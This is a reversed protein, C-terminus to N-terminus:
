RGAMPDEPWAHRPYRRCLQRRISAYHREWFGALDTTVQVPRQNPALLHLVVGVRGEVVRPGERLGFFDQLRSAVWPPRDEEYHVAARRRGPLEVALPTLRDLRAAPVGLERPLERPLAQRLEDLSTRDACLRELAEELREAGPVELGAEPMAVAVTVLRARLQPWSPCLEELGVRRAAEFLVRAAEPSPPAPMRREELVLERYRVQRVEEVRSGNLVLDRREDLWEFFDEWLWDPEIRSLQRALRRRGSAELREELEVVVALGEGAVISSEAVPAAGGSCLLVDRGRLRGVRDPYAALLARRLEREGAQRTLGGIRELQAAARDLHANRRALDLRHLPDSDGRVTAPGSSPDRQSLLAALRAAQLSPSAELLRSLRPHLPYRAMRRGLETIRGESLAGLDTLLGADFTPPTLWELREPDVDMAHLELLTQSLDLRAIEPELQAPRGEYDRQAYLRYCRGPATRGARGARQDASSRPIRELRLSGGVAVRALGADVVSTVGEVTVSSEAVNTSLLIRPRESPRVAEDQEEPSLDGHLPMVRYGQFREAAERCRRIEAAGPLFVLIHGPARTAQRLAAAVQEELPGPPQLYEIEVPFRVGECRLVPWGLRQSLPEADLTASMILLRLDPRRRQLDRLLALGVDSALHREHFEDLVVAGVGGLSPDDLLRRTLIGETVYLIRTRPGTCDDFRVQYGVTQGAK